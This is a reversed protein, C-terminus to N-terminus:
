TVRCVAAPTVEVPMVTTKSLKANFLGNERSGRALETLRHSGLQVMAEWETDVKNEGTGGGEKDQLRTLTIHKTDKHIATVLTKKWRPCGRPV